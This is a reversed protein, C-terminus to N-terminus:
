LTALDQLYVWWTDCGLDGGTANKVSDDFEVQAMGKDKAADKKVQLVKGTKGNIAERLVQTYHNTNKIVVRVKAGLAVQSEPTEMLWPIDSWYGDNRTAIFEQPVNGPGIRYSGKGVVWTTFYERALSTTVTGARIMRKLDALTVLEVALEEVTTFKTCELMGRM